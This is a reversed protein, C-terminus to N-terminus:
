VFSANPAEVTNDPITLDAVFAANLVCGGPGTGSLPTETPTASPQEPTITPQGAIQGQTPQTVPASTAQQSIQTGQPQPNSPASSSQPAPTQQNTDGGGLSCALSVVTFLTIVVLFSRRQHM